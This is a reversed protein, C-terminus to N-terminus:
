DHRGRPGARSRRPRRPSRRARGGPRRAARGPRRVRPQHRLPEARRRGSDHDAREVHDTTIQVRAFTGPKLKGDPNPVEGEIAFARSKLNVGPAIRVVKGAFVQQPFADVKCPWRAARDRDVARVEGASRRHAEAAAPPRDADGAGAAPRVPRAVRAARRRLRRVARPDRRRAARAAGAAAVLVAGRHRRSAPAGVRAGPRAGGEGHRLADAGDRPGIALAPQAVLPEERSRAAAARRRAARDTSVVTPCGTSRRCNATARRATARARRIWRRASRTPATSCSRRISSSSRRRGDAVRDGLDHVLRRCADPWKPASSSKRARRSRASSTSRAASTASRRPRPRSPGRRTAAPLRSAVIARARLGSGPEATLRRDRRRGSEM